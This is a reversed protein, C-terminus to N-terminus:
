LPVSESFDYEICFKFTLLFFELLFYPLDKDLTNAESSKFTKKKQIKTKYYKDNSRIKELLCMGIKPKNFMQLSFFFM